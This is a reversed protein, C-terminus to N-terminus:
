GWQAVIIQGLFCGLGHRFAQADGRASREVLVPLVNERGILHRDVCVQLPEIGSEAEFGYSRDVVPATRGGAVIDQDVVHGDSEFGNRHASHSPASVNVREAMRIAWWPAPEVSATHSTRCSQMVSCSRRCSSTACYRCALSGVVSLGTAPASRGTRSAKIRTA